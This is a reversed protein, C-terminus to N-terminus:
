LIEIWKLVEIAEVLSEYRYITRGDHHFIIHPIRYFKDLVHPGVFEALFVIVSGEDIIVTEGSEVIWGLPRTTRYIEGLTM